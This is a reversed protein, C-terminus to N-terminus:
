ERSSHARDSTIMAAYDKRLDPLALFLDNRSRRRNAKWYPTANAQAPRNYTTAQGVMTNANTADELLTSTDVLWKPQITKCKPGCSNQINSCACSKNECANADRLMESQKCRQQSGWAVLSWTTSLGPDFALSISDTKPISTKITASM